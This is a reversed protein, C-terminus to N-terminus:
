FWFIVVLALVALLGSVAATNVYTEASRNPLAGVGAVLLLLLLLPSFVGYINGGYPHFPAAGEASEPSSVRRVAGLLPTKWVTVRQGERVRSGQNSHIRFRTRPTSVVYALQPDSLSSSISVPIRSRVQEGGIKRLPLAWDVLLLLCCALLALNVSRALPAYRLLLEWRPNIRPPEMPEQALLQDYAWRRRPDGLIEFGTEVEELQHKRAPDIRSRLLRARKRQYAQYIQPLTATESIGLIHYYNQM